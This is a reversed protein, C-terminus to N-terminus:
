TYIYYGIRRKVEKFADDATKRFMGLADENYDVSSIDRGNLTIQLLGRRETGTRMVTATGQRGLNIETKGYLHPTKAGNLALRAERRAEVTDRSRDFVEGFPSGKVANIPNTKSERASITEKAM